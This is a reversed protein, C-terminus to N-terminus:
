VDMLDFSGKETVFSSGQKVLFLILWIVILNMHILNDHKIMFKIIHLITYTYHLLMKENVVASCDMDVWIDHVIVDTNHVNIDFIRTWSSYLTDFGGYWYCDCINRLLLNLITM